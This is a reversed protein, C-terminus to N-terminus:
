FMGLFRGKVAKEKGDKSDSLSAALEMIKKTVDANPASTKLPEGSNIAGMTNQYDNPISWLIEKKIMERVEAMSIGSKHNYRNIVVIIDGPTCGLDQFTEMLRKVNIVGPLNPITVLLVKDSTCALYELVNGLSQGGDIVIYNFISRMLKLVKEIVEPVMGIEEVVRVPTPLIYVGSAHRQLIGMLYAADLRSINRAVEVWSFVPKINLFLPVEGSFLNMDLLAVSPNGDPRAMGTALNVATTTTGVGGKAGFVTFVKGEEAKTVVEKVERERRGLKLLAAAVEERKLPQPFFGKVGAGLARILVNPDVERSTLFIEEVEGSVQAQNIRRFDRELDRGMELILLSCPGPPEVLNWGGVSGIIEALEEKTPLDDVELRVTLLDTRM